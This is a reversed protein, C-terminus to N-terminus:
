VLARRNTQSAQKKKKKKQASHFKKTLEDRYRVSPVSTISSGDDDDDEDIVQDTTGCNAWGKVTAALTDWSEWVNCGAENSSAASRKKGTQSTFQTMDHTYYTSTEGERTHSTPTEAPVGVSAIPHQQQPHHQHQHHRQHGVHNKTNAQDILQDVFKQSLGVKKAAERVRRESDASLKKGDFNGAAVDIFRNLLNLEAETAGEPVEPMGPFSQMSARRNQQELANEQLATLIAQAASGSPDRPPEEPDMPAQPAAHPDADAIADWSTLQDYDTEADPGVDKRLHRVSAPQCTDSDVPASPDLAELGEGGKLPARKKMRSQNILVDVVDSSIGRKEAARRLDDEDVSESDNSRLQTPSTPGNMADEFGPELYSWNKNEQHHGMNDQDEEDESPGTNVNLLVPDEHHNTKTTRDMQPYRASQPPPAHDKRASDPARHSQPDVSPGHALGTPTHPPAEDAQNTEYAYNDLFNNLANLEDAETPQMSRAHEQVTEMPPQSPRMDEWTNRYEQTTAVKAPDWTPAGGNMPKFSAEVLPVGSVICGKQPDIVTECTNSGHVQQQEPYTQHYRVEDMDVLDHHVMFDSQSTMTSLNVSQLAPHSGPIYSQGITHSRSKDRPMNQDGIESVRAGRRSVLPGEPQRQRDNSIYESTRDEAQADVYQKTRGQESARINEIRRVDLANYANVADFDSESSMSRAASNQEPYIGSSSAQRFVSGNRHPQTSSLKVRPPRQQVTQMRHNGRVFDMESTDVTDDMEDIENGTEERNQAKRRPSQKRKVHGNASTQSLESQSDSRDLAIDYPPGHEIVDDVRGGNWIEKPNRQSRSKPAVHERARGERVFDHTRSQGHIREKPPIVAGTSQFHENPFSTWETHEGSPKLQQERHRRASHRQIVKDMDFQQTRGPTRPQEDDTLLMQARRNLKEVQHKEDQGEERNQIHKRASMTKRQDPQRLSDNDDEILERHSRVAHSPLGPSGVFNGDFEVWGQDTEYTSARQAQGQPHRQQSLSSRTHHDDRSERFVISDERPRVEDNSETWPPIFNSVEARSRGTHALQPRIPQTAPHGSNHAKMFTNKDEFSEWNDQDQQATRSTPNGSPPIRKGSIKRNGTTRKRNRAPPIRRNEPVDQSSSSSQTLSSYMANSEESNSQVVVVDPQTSPPLILSPDEWYSLSEIQEICPLTPVESESDIPQTGHPRQHHEPLSNKSANRRTAKPIRPPTCPKAEGDSVMGASPNEFAKRTAKVKKGSTPRTVIDAGPSSDPQHGNRPSDNMTSDFPQKASEKLKGVSRNPTKCEYNEQSNSFTDKDHLGEEFRKRVSVVNAQKLAALSDRKHRKPPSELDDQTPGHSFVALGRKVASVAFNEEGDSADPRKRPTCLSNSRSKSEKYVKATDRPPPNLPQLPKRDPQSLPVDTSQRRQSMPGAQSADDHPYIGPRLSLVDDIEAANGEHATVVYDAENHRTSSFPRPPEFKLNAEAQHRAHRADEDSITVQQRLKSYDRKQRPQAPDMNETSERDGHESSETALAEEFLRSTLSEKKMVDSLKLNHDRLFQQIIKHMFIRWVSDAVNFGDVQGDGAGSKLMHSLDNKMRRAFADNSAMCYHLIANPDASQEVLAHVVQLSLGVQEAADRLRTQDKQNIRRGKFIHGAVFIFQNLANVAVTTEDRQKRLLSNRHATTHKSREDISSVGALFGALTNTTSSSAFTEDDNGSDDIGTSYQMAVDQRGISNRPPATM